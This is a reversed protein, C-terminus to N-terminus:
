VLQLGILIALAFIVVYILINQVKRRAQPDNTPRAKRMRRRSKRDRIEEPTLWMEKGHHTVYREYGRSIWYEEEIQKRARRVEREHERRKREEDPMIPTTTATGSSIRRHEEAKLEELTQQRIEELEEPTLAM